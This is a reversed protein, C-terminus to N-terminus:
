SRTFLVTTDPVSYSEVIQKIERISENLGVDYLAIALPPNEMKAQAIKDFLIKFEQHDSEAKRVSDPKM